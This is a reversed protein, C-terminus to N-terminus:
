KPQGEQTPHCKDNPCYWHGGKGHCESCNVFTGPDNNICDEEYADYVGDECDIMHCEAWEMEWGCRSCARRDDYDLHDFIQAQEAM